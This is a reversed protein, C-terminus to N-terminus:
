FIVKLKELSGQGSSIADISHCYDSVFNRIFYIYVLVLVLTEVNNTLIDIDCWILYLGGLLVATLGDYIHVSFIHATRVAAFQSSNFDLFSSHNILPFEIHTFYNSTEGYFQKIYDYNMAHIMVDKFNFCFSEIVTIKRMLYHMSKRMRNTSIKALVVPICFFGIAAFIPWVGPGNLLVISAALALIMAIVTGLIKSLYDVLNMMNDVDDTLIQHTSINNVISSKISKRFTASLVASRLRIATRLNLWNTIGGFIKSLFFCVAFGLMYYICEFRGHFSFDFKLVSFLHDTVNTATSNLALTSTTSNELSDLTLKLFIVPACLASLTSLTYFISAIMVRTKCFNWAVKMMSGHKGRTQKEDKYIGLLRKGNVDARDNYTPIVPLEYKKRNPSSEIMPDDYSMLLFDRVWFFSFNSCCGVSDVPLESHSFNDGNVDILLCSM